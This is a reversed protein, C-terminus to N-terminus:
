VGGDTAMERYEEPCSTIETPDCLGWELSGPDDSPIAGCAYAFTAQEWDSQFDTTLRTGPFRVLLVCGAHWEVTCPIM